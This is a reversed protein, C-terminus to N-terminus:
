GSDDVNLLREYVKEFRTAVHDETLNSLAFQRGCEGMREALDRQRLIRTVAKALSKSDSAPVKLGTQGETVIESTGGSNTVVTATGRMMAEATVLGFPEEWTSPVVQVWAQSFLKELENRNVHGVLSVYPGIGLHQVTAEIHAREPGDGALILKVNPVQSVITPMARLLVDIGKKPVFRGAFGIVPTSPLLPRKPRVPVGNWIVDDVPVGESKLRQRVWDSNAVITNFVTGWRKWMMLQVKARVVGITPMCAERLCASGQTENCPKGNPLTKTNLPCILNYNVIHLLSKYGRLLQLIAPSLQVMFMRVHVVDPAFERLTNRLQTVASPNFVQLVKRLPSETGYCQYDAENTLQLPNSRSAFLRADHGRDRLRDRLGVSMHEAGGHLVGYDNVILIKM